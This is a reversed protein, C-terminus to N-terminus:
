LGQFLSSLDVFEGGEVCDVVVFGDDFKWVVNVLDVAFRPGM